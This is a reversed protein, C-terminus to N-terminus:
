IVFCCVFMLQILQGVFAGVLMIGLEIWGWEGINMIEQIEYGYSFGIGFLM